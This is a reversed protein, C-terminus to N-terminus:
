IYTIPKPITVSLLESCDCFALPGISAVPYTVGNHTVSDPITLAGAPKTYGSWYPVGPYTITVTQDISNLNYYLTQGSPAVVTGDYAWTQLSVSGFLLVSAIILLTKKM